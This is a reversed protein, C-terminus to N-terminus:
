GALRMGGIVGQSSASTYAEHLTAFSEGCEEALRDQEYLQPAVSQMREKVRRPVEM